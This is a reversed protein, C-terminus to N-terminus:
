FSETEQTTKVRFEFLDFDHHPHAGVTGATVEFTMIEGDNANPEITYVSTIWSQFREVLRERQIRRHEICEPLTEGHVVPAERDRADAYAVDADAFEQLATRLARQVPPRRTEDQLLDDAADAVNRAAAILSATAEPLTKM